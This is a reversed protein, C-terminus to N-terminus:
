TKLIGCGHSLKERRHEVPERAERRREAGGDGQEEEGGPEGEEERAQGSAAGHM